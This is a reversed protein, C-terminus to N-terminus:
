GRCQCPISDMSSSSSNIMEPHVIAWLINNIDRFVFISMPCTCLCLSFCLLNVSVNVPMKYFLLEQSMEDEFYYTKIHRLLCKWMMLLEQWYETKSFNWNSVFALLFWDCCLLLAPTTLVNCQEFIFWFWSGKSYSHRYGLAIHQIHSSIYM